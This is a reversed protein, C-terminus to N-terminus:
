VVSLHDDYGLGGSVGFREGPLGPEESAIVTVEAGERSLAEALNASYSAVGTWGGHREGLEPFPSILAVDPASM